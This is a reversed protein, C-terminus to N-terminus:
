DNSAYLRQFGKESFGNMRKDGVLIVPVGRAGMKKYRAKARPNKDIDYETFPISHKKFYRRAKKCYGCWQTSYMIVQRGVDYLSSEYTVHKYTNIQLDLQQAQVSDPKNDSFHVKGNDDVWKYVEGRMPMAVALLLLLLITPRKM